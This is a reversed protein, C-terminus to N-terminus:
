RSALGSSLIGSFTGSSIIRRPEHIPDWYGAGGVSLWSELWKKVFESLTDVDWKTGPAGLHGYAGPMIEVGVKQEHSGSKLTVVFPLGFFGEIIRQPLEDPKFEPKVADVRWLARITPLLFVDQGELERRAGEVAEEAQRLKSADTLVIEALIGEPTPFLFFKGWDVSENQVGAKRLSERLFQELENDTM